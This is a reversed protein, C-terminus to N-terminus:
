PWNSESVPNILICSICVTIEEPDMKDKEGFHLLKFCM